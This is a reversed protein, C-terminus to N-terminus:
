SSDLGIDHRLPLVKVQLWIPLSMSSPYQCTCCIALRVVSDYSALARLGLALSVAALDPWHSVILRRLSSGGERGQIMRDSAIYPWAELQCIAGAGARVTRVWAKGVGCKGTLTRHCAFGFYDNDGRVRKPALTPRFREM